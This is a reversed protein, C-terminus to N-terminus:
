VVISIGVQELCVKTLSWAKRTLGQRKYVDSTASSLQPLTRVAFARIRVNPTSYLWVDRHIGGFRWFDQDDLYSGDSYQYVEVAIENKGAKLYPTVNFESPEM